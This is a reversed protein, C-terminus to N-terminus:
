KGEDFNKVLEIVTPKTIVIAYIEEIDESALRICGDSQHMGLSSRDEVKVGSASLVWPLGHIGLGKAPASCGKVEKEFPIWRSGFVGIMEVPKGHYHGMMKPRYVATKSGLTYKGIPTLLGSPKTSDVRGLGVSYTKLLVRQHTDLDDYYFWMKCRSLDVVFYFGINKDQRLVNFRDGDAVDQKFYDPKGNLSRAIFHRSTQYHRAYDTLWASKGKQWSVRSKYTVTEVIPLKPDGKNFLEEIRNVDPLGSNSPKAIEVTQTPPLQPKSESQQPKSVQPKSEQPTKEPVPPEPKNKQPQKIAAIPTIARELEVEIPNTENTAPIDQKTAISTSENGGKFLAILLVSGFLISALIALIKPFTM